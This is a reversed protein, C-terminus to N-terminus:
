GVSEGALRAAAAGLAAAALSLVLCLAMLGRGFLLLLAITARRSRALQMERIM